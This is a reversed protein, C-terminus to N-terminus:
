DNNNLMLFDGDLWGMMEQNGYYWDSFDIGDELGSRAVVEDIVQVDEPISSTAVRSKGIYLRVAKCLLGYLRHPHTSSEESVTEPKLSAAFSELRELDEFNKSQVTHHFLVNFPIFPVHVIARNCALTLIIVKHSESDTFLSSRSM